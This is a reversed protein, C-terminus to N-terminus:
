AQFRAQRLRDAGLEALGHPEDLCVQAVCDPLKHLVCAEEVGDRLAVLPVPPKSRNAPGQEPLLRIWLSQGQLKLAAALSGACAGARALKQGPYM